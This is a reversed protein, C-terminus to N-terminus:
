VHARGIKARRADDFAGRLSESFKKLSGGEVADQVRYIEPIVGYLSKRSWDWEGFPGNGFGNDGFGPM